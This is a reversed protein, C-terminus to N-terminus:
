TEKESKNARFMSVVGSLAVDIDVVVSFCVGSAVVEVSSLDVVIDFLVVMSTALPGGFIAVFGLLAVNIM